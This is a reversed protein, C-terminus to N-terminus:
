IMQFVIQDLDKDGELLFLTGTKRDFYRHGAKLYVLELQVKERPSETVIEQEKGMDKEVDAKTRFGIKEKGTRKTIKPNPFMNKFREATPISKEYKEVLKDDTFKDVRVFTPTPDNHWKALYFRHWRKDEYDDYYDLIEEVWYEGEKLGDNKLTKPKAQVSKPEIEGKLIQALIDLNHDPVAPRKIEDDDDSSEESPQEVVAKVEEVVVPAKKPTRKATKKPEESVTDEAPANRQALRTSKRLTTTPIVEETEEDVVEAKVKAVKEKKVKPVPEEITNDERNWVRKCGSCTTLNRANGKRKFEAKCKKCTLEYEANFSTASNDMGSLVDVTFLRSNTFYERAFIKQKKESM